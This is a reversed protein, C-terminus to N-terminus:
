KPGGEENERYGSRGNMAYVDNREQQDNQKNKMQQTFRLAALNEM